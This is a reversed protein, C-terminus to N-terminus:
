GVSQLCALYDALEVPLSSIFTLWDGTAPHRFALHAAHLFLRPPLAAEALDAYRQAVLDRGFEPDGVLPHGAHAAHIRLQNTRGTVPEMELLTWAALREAVRFRTEAPRGEPRVGWRPRLSADRGI